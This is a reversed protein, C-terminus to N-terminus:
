FDKGFQKLEEFTYADNFKVDQYVLMYKYKNNTLSNWHRGLEIKDTAILHDGKTEILLVKKSQTYAIFDPYHNGTPGNIYFGKNEINKTWFVINEWSGLERAVSLEFDNMKIESEYLSKPLSQKIM